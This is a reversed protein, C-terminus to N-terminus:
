KEKRERYFHILGVCFENLVNEFLFIIWMKVFDDIWVMKHNSDEFNLVELILEELVMLMLFTKHGVVWDEEWDLAVEVEVEWSGVMWFIKELFLHIMRIYKYSTIDKLDYGTICSYNIRQTKSM